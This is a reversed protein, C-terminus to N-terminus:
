HNQGHFVRIKQDSRQQQQQQQSFRTHTHRNASIVFSVYKMANLLSNIETHREFEFEYPQPNRSPVAYGVQGSVM